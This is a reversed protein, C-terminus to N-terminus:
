RVIEAQCAARLGDAVDGMATHILVACVETSGARSWQRTAGQPVVDEKTMTLGAALFCAEVKKVMSGVLALASANGIPAQFTCDTANACEMRLASNGGYEQSLATVCASSPLSQAFAPAACLMMGALFAAAKLDHSKRDTPIITV